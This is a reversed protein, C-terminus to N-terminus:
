KFMGDRRLGDLAASHPVPPPHQSPVPPPLAASRGGACAVPARGRSSSAAFPQFTPSQLSSPATRSAGAALPPRLSSFGGGGDQACHRLNYNFAIPSVQKDYYRKLLKNGPATLM